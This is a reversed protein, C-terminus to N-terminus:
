NVGNRKLDNHSENSIYQDSANKGDSIIEFM